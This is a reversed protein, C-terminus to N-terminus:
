LRFGMLRWTINRNSSYSSEYLKHLTNALATIKSLCHDLGNYMFLQSFYLRIYCSFPQSRYTKTGSSITISLRLLNYYIIHQRTITIAIENGYTIYDYNYDVVNNIYDGVIIVRTM